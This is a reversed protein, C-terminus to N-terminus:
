LTSILDVEVQPNALVSFPGLLSERLKTSPPLRPDDFMLRRLPGQSNQFHADPSDAKWLQPTTLYAAPTPLSQSCLCPKPPISAVQFHLCFIWHLNLVSLLLQTARSAHIHSPQIHPSLQTPATYTSHNVEWSLQTPEPCFYTPQSLTLALNPKCKHSNFTHASMLTSNAKSSSRIGLIIFKTPNCPPPIQIPYRVILITPSEPLVVSQVAKPLYQSPISTIKSCIPVKM